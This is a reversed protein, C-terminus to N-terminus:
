SLTRRVRRWLWLLYARAIWFYTAAGSFRGPWCPIGDHYAAVVVGLVQSPNLHPDPQWRGDGQAVWYRHTRHVLRHIVLSSGSAFVILAGLPIREGPPVIEVECDPPLTPMMSTGRLPWRFRGQRALSEHLLPLWAALAAAPLPAHNPDPASIQGPTQGDPRHVM